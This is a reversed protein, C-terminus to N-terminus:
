VVSDDLLLPACHLSAATFCILTNTTCTLKGLFDDNLENLACGVCSGFSNSSARCTPKYIGDVSGPDVSTVTIEGLYELTTFDIAVVTSNQEDIPFEEVMLPYLRGDRPYLALNIIRDEPHYFDISYFVEDTDTFVQYYQAPSLTNEALFNQYIESEALGDIEAFSIEVIDTPRPYQALEDSRFEVNENLLVPANDEQQPQCSFGTGIILLFLFLYLSNQM